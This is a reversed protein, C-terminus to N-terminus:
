LEVRRTRSMICIDSGWGKARLGELTKKAEEKTDYTETSMPGDQYALYWVTELVVIRRVM